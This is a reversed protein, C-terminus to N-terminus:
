SLSAIVFSFRLMIVLVNASAMALSLLSRVFFGTPPIATLCRVFRLFPLYNTALILSRFGLRALGFRRDKKTEEGVDRYPAFPTIARAEGMKGSKGDNRRETSIVKVARRDIGILSTRM